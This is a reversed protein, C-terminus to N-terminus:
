IICLSIVPNLNLEVPILETSKRTHDIRWVPAIIPVVWVAYLKQVIMSISNVNGRLDRGFDLFFLASYLIPSTINKRRARDREQM